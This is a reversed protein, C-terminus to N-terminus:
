KPLKMMRIKTPIISYNASKPLKMQKKFSDEVEMFM